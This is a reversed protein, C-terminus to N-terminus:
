QDPCVDDDDVREVGGHLRELAFASNVAVSRRAVERVLEHAPLMVDAM